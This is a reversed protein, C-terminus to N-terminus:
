SISNYYIKGNIITAKPVIKVEGTYNNGYADRFNHPGKELDVITLNARIGRAIGREVGKMISAPVSTTLRVVEEFSMGFAMCESMHIDLRSTLPDNSLETLDSSIVDPYFGQKFCPLAVTKSWNRSGRCSDFLVGRKKADWAEDWVKGTAPNIMSNEGGHFAHTVIDGEKFYGIWKPLPCVSHTVHVILRTGIYDCVERAAKMVCHLKEPTETEGPGILVKIGILVDKHVEFFYKLKEKNIGDIKVGDSSIYRNVGPVSGTISSISLAANVTVPADNIVLKRQTHFSSISASGMDCVATLGRKYINELKYYFKMEPFVHGHFEILGPVVYLGEADIVEHACIKCDTSGPAFVDAINPEYIGIDAKMNLNREPDVVTANKILLDYCTVVFAM